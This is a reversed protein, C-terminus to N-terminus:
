LIKQMVTRKTSNKSTSKLRAMKWKISAAVGDLGPYVLQRNIGLDDLQKMFDFKKVGPVKFKQLPPFSGTLLHDLPKFSRFGKPLPHVSLVAQQTSARDFFKSPLYLFDETIEDMDKWHKHPIFRVNNPTYSWVVGDHKSDLDEVAFFLAILPSRTWDLLRTPIGHHQALVIWDLIFSPSTQIFPYGERKFLRILTQEYKIWTGNPRCAHGPRFISPILKYGRTQGRYVPGSEPDDSKPVRTLLDDLKYVTFM